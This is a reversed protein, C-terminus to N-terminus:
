QKSWVKTKIESEIVAATGGKNLFARADKLPSPPTWICSTLKLEKKLKMAGEIGPYGERQGLTKLDDNDAVIVAKYIGLRLLAERVQDNGSMCTPRGIAFLGMTLFAATDTPGEPLFAVKIGHDDPLNPIFIGQRSGTVAWKKGEDNRLRIGIHKGDGDSMPFAWAKHQASWKVNLAQLSQTSVGLTAALEGCKRLPKLSDMVGAADIQSPAPKAKPIYVPRLKKDEYFHFWGGKSHPRDSEVRQCLMAREGFTCWDGKGCIPCPNKTTAHQWIGSM